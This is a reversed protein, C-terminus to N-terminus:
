LKGAASVTADVNRCRGFSCRLSVAGVGGAATRKSTAPAALSPPATAASGKKLDPSVKTRALLVTRSPRKTGLSDSNPTDLFVLFGRHIGTMPIQPCRDNLSKVM